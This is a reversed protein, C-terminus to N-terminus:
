LGGEASDPPLVTPVRPESWGSRQNLNQSLSRYRIPTPDSGDLDHLNEIALYGRQSLYEVHAGAEEIALLAHYGEANPFLVDAVEVVTKPSALLELVKQLRAGHLADLEDLRGNLDEIPGEHGGLTLRIENAWPRLRDLSELYHGLGTNLSLHEPAQHPSTGQLVHDSSLLIDDVRMVVQGPCHGPTHLIEIPGIRDLRPAFTFDVQVSTFLHKNLLYLAMIAERREGEVGAEVLYSRLRRAVVALREEFNTLVRRDLEHIGVQATTRKRVAPLGGFHDIHGHSILIHTLEDWGVPEGFEEKVAAIGAELDDDSRGFGSGVDVLGVIGDQCVLHAFAHFDPFVELPLRYIRAGGSSEYRALMGPTSM